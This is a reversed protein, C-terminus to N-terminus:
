ERGTATDGQFIRIRTGRGRHNNEILGDIIEALENPTELHFFTGGIKKYERGESDKVTEM